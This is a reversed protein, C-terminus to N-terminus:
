GWCSYWGIGQYEWGLSILHDREEKSGTFHYAGRRANPNHLRYQPAEYDFASNFAVGEYNWGAGILRSKEAEDMTYLHEGHVPDYLRHVPKGTSLPFTFGVGEYKWGAKVLNDREEASGTYFHEGSNPDYLRFMDMTAREADIQRVFGCVDCDRDWEGSYVHGTAPLAKTEYYDCKSCDRQATGSDVCTPAKTVYWSGFTHSCSINQWVAYLNFSGSYVDKKLVSGAKYQATQSNASEAWGLFKYGPRSPTKSTLTLNTGVKKQQNAPANTGGNAHFVVNYTEMVTFNVVAEEKVEHTSMSTGNPTGYCKAVALIKLQGPGRSLSGFKLKYNIDSKSIDNLSTLTSVEQSAGLADTLTARVTVGDLRPFTVSGSIGVSKGKNPTSTALSVNIRVANGPVDLTRVAGGYVFGIKGDQTLIQYWYNGAHNKYLAIAQLSEGVAMKRVDDSAACSARSCPLTKIYGAELAKLNLYSTYKTCKALYAEAPTPDAVTVSEVAPSCCIFYKGSTQTYSKKLTSVSRSTKYIQCMQGSKSKNCEITYATNDVVKYVFISHGSGINARIVDGPKVQINKAADGYVPASYLNTRSGFVVYAMYAAFGQCQWNTGQGKGKAPNETGVGNFGNSSCRSPYDHNSATTGKCSKNSVADLFPLIKLYGTCSSKTVGLKKGLAALIADQENRINKNWYAKGNTTVTKYYDDVLVEVDKYTYADPYNVPSKQAADINPIQVTQTVTAAQAPVAIGSLLSLVTVVALLISLVKKTWRTM